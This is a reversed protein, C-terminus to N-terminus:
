KSTGTEKETKTGHHVPCMSLGQAPTERLGIVSKGGKPWGFADASIEAKHNMIRLEERSSLKRRAIASVKPDPAIHGQIFFLTKLTTRAILRPLGRLPKIRQHVVVSDPLTAILMWRGLPRLLSPFLFYGFNYIISQSAKGQYLHHDHRAAEYAEAFAVLEDFSGPMGTIPQNHEDVFHKSLEKIFLYAARKMNASVGPMGLRTLLRHQGTAVMCFTYLFDRNNFTGPVHRAIGLHIKNLRQISEITAPHNPGNGFWTWFFDLSEQNRSAPRRVQKNTFLIVEAGEAPLTTHLLTSTLGLTLAFDNGLYEASLGMIRAYDVEPDLREIERNVWKWGRKVSPEVDWM